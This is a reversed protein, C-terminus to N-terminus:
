MKESDFGDRLCHWRPKTLAQVTTCPLNNYTMDWEFPFRFFAGRTAGFGRSRSRFFKAGTTEHRM